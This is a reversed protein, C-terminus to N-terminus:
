ICGGYAAGSWSVCGGCAGTSGYYNGGAGACVGAVGVHVGAAGYNGNYPNYFRGGAASSGNYPNYHSGTQFNAGTATTGYKYQNYGGYPGYWASGGYVVSRSVSQQKSMSDNMLAIIHNVRDVVEEQSLTTTNSVANRSPPVNAELAQYWKDANSQGQKLADQNSSYWEEDSNPDVSRGCFTASVSLVAVM